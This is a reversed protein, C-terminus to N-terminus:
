NQPRAGSRRGWGGGGPTSLRIRDGARASLTVKAPLKTRRRRRALLNEGRRGPSGGALGYPTTSRREALLSVEAPVLLEVERVIGDGGRHRGRGGSGRRLRYERIRIPYYAELAEIPTNLTNTM